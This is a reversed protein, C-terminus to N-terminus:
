NACRLLLAASNIAGCSVVVLDGSFMQKQGGIETEVGTVERGSENTHLKVVKAGTMLTLNPYVLSPRVCDVEADGKAHVLCPYGDCTDCRICQSLTLDVENLKIAVPLHFPYFGMGSLKDVIKQMFPEQSVPPYPYDEEAPPETPDEKCLFSLM